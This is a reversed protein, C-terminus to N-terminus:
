HVEGHSEETKVFTNELNNQVCRILSISRYDSILLPDKVKPVLSIFSSNCSSDTNGCRKFYKVIAAIDGLLVDWYKKIFKFM